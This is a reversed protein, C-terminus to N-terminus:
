PEMGAFGVVIQCIAFHFVKAYQIGFALAQQFAGDVTEAQRGARDLIWKVNIFFVPVLCNGTISRCQYLLRSQENSVPK